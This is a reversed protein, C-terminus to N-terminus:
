LDRPDCLAGASAAQSTGGGNLVVDGEALHVVGDSGNLEL